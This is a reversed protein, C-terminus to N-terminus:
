YKEFLIGEIGVGPAFSFSMGIQKEAQFDREQEQAQTELRLIMRKLVFLIACSLINGYQRLVEWSDSVQEDSLGLSSQVNEIIKTGGPHVAWLDINEKTLEHSALFDSIVPNVGTQIYNPLDRSLKCTIGRDTIGLLIGDETDEVLYSFNDKIAIKGQGFLSNEERAGIVVAACGDGFISHIIVDNINDEFAANVSSLELCIVLAKQSPNAKVFDCAVRLGNMAAACGMFHIPIRAINRKLGLSKILQADIGPAIFGTSTVFAILGISDEINASNQYDETTMNVEAAKLAQKAVKEALPFAYESFLEMRAEITGNKQSFEYTEETLLNIALQRQEIRTNQYIKAIRERNRNMGALNAVFEAADKQFTTNEPTGTAIGEIIPLLQKSSETNSYFGSVLTNKSKPTTQFTTRTKM